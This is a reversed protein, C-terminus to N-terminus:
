ISDEVRQQMDKALAMTVDGMLRNHLDVQRDVQKQLWKICALAEPMTIKEGESVANSISDPDRM